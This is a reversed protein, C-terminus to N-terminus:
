SFWCHFQTDQGFELDGEKYNLEVSNAVKISLKSIAQTMEM